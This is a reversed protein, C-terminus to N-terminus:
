KVYGDKENSQVTGNDSRGNRGYRILEVRKVIYPPVSGCIHECRATEDQQITAHIGEKGRLIDEQGSDQYKLSSAHNAAGRIRGENQDNSPGNGPHSSTAYECPCDQTHEVREWKM